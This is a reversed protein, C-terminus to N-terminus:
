SKRGSLERLFTIKQEYIHMMSYWVDEMIKDFHFTSECGSLTDAVGPHSRGIDCPMPRERDM